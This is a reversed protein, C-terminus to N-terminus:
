PSNVQQRMEGQDFWVVDEGAAKSEEYETRIRKVMEADTAVHTSGVKEYEADINYRELSEVLEKMNQEGLEHLRKTEGPFYYEGNTEGHTISSNLFGGNRGSAGNGVFTQEILIIDLDPDMEKAQLAGWLGTFGGGVILLQCSEDGSLAPLIEPKGDADFWVPCYKSQALAAVHPEM